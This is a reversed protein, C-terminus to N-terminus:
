LTIRQFIRAWYNHPVYLMIRGTTDTNYNPYIFFYLSAESLDFSNLEFQTQAKNM